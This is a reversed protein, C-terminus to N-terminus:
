KGKGGKGRMLLVTVAVVAVAVVVGLLQISPSLLQMKTKLKGM